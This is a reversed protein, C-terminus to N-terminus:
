SPGNKHHMEVKTELKDTRTELQNIREEHKSIQEDRRKDNERMATIYDKLEQIAIRLENIPQVMKMVIAIFGGLTILASILYGLFENEGM